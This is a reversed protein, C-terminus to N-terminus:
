KFEEALKEFAPISKKIMNFDVCYSLRFYGPCGFGTGPVLLINHKVARKIFEVDDDMLAKPFLYFAGEPKTCEFGLRTLNEYLFDRKEKYAEVNCPTYLCDAAVKQFLAPANVFGLTRNTFAMARELTEIDDINSSAAAYGIREGALGLSKSFSNIVICNKFISLVSPVKVGDYVIKDYPQDSLVYITIGLEKEKKEIVNEMKELHEKTYVRGTPNNPTNIIIAKTKKNIANELAHLDPDFTKTDAPIAVLKGGHNETYFGYEVFYPAFTIVEESPNLLAKLVVNLAGGAGVTMVINNADLKVGSEDQLMKAIKSRVDEYGPNSMYKHAGDECIHKKMSEIAEAPPNDFPNGLSFDYVNDRGYIKALKNGEEFMARIWSSNKLNEVIRKSFM